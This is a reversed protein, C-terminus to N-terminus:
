VCVVNVDRFSLLHVMGGVFSSFTQIDDVIDVVIYVVTYVIYTYRWQFVCQGIRFYRGLKTM